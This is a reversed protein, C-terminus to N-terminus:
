VQSIIGAGVIDDNFVSTNGLLTAHDEDGYPMEEQPKKLFGFCWVGLGGVFSIIALGLFPLGIWPGKLKLGLAFLGVLVPSSVLSAGIEVMAVASYLRCFRPILESVIHSHKQLPSTM